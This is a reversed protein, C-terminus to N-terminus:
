HASLDAAGPDRYVLFSGQVFGCFSDPLLRGIMTACTDLGATGRTELGAGPFHPRLISVQEKEYLRKM